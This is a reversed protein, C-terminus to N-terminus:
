GMVAWRHQESVPFFFIKCSRKLETKDAYLFNDGRQFGSNLLKPMKWLKFNRIEPPSFGELKVKNALNWELNKLSNHTLSEKLAPIKEYL